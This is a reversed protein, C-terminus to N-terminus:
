GRVRITVKFRVRLGLITKKRKPFVTSFDGIKRTKSYKQPNRNGV